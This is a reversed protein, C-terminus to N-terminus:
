FDYYFNSLSTRLGIYIFQAHQTKSEARESRNSLGVVVNLNTIPNILYGVHIDQYTVTTAIGQTTYISQGPFLQADSKFIDGGFNVFLSDKGKIAYNFKLETFFDRIRYNLIVVGEHFNAGLPHALAQNYHSYSQEPNESAYTFPRVTNYEAQLTLDRVTFADLYHLGAQYGYKNKSGKRNDDLLYQGYLYFSSNVKLKLALGTVVNNRHHLGYYWANLRERAPSQNFRSSGLDNGPVM